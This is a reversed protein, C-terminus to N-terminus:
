EWSATVEEITKWWVSVSHFGVMRSSVVELRKRLKQFRDGPKGFM